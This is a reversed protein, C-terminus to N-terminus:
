LAPFFEKLEVLFSYACLVGSISPGIKFMLASRFNSTDVMAAGVFMLVTASGLAILTLM